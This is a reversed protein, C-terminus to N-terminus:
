RWCRNADVTGEEVTADTGQGDPDRQGVAADVRRPHVQQGPAEVLDDLGARAARDEVSRHPRRHGLAQGDVSRDHTGLEVCSISHQEVVHAQM